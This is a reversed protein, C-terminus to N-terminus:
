LGLLDGLHEAPLHPLLGLTATVLEVVRPVDYTSFTLAVGFRSTTSRLLSHM